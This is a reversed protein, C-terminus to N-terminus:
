AAHRPQDRREAVEDAASADAIGDDVLDLVTTARLDDNQIHAGVRIRQLYEEVSVM